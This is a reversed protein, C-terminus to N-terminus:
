HQKHPTMMLTRIEAGTPRVMLGGTILQMNFSDRCTTCAYTNPRHALWRGDVSPTDLEGGCEECVYAGCQDTAKQALYYGLTGKPYPTIM